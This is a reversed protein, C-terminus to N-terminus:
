QIRVFEVREKLFQQYAEEYLSDVERWDGNVVKHVNYKVHDFHLRLASKAHNIRKWVTKKSSTQIFEGDVKIRWTEFPKIEKTSEILKNAEKNLMGVIKDNSM